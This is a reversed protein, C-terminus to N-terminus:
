HDTRAGHRGHLHPEATSDSARTPDARVGTCAMCEATNALWLASSRFREAKTCPCLHPQIPLRSARHKCTANTSYLTSPAQIGERDGAVFACRPLCSSPMICRVRMLTRTHIAALLVLDTRRADTCLTCTDLLYSKNEMASRAGVGKGEEKEGARGEEGVMGGVDDLSM